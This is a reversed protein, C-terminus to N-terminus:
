ENEGLDKLAQKKKFFRKLPYWIIAVFTLIISVLVGFIVGLTGVGLGPGIYAEVTLPFLVFTLLSCVSVVLGSFNRM